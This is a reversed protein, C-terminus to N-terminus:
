EGEKRFCREVYRTFLSSEFDIFQSYTSERVFTYVCEFSCEERFGVSEREREELFLYGCVHSLTLSESLFGNPLAFRFSHVFILSSLTVPLWDSPLEKMRSM